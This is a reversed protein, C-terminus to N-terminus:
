ASKSLPLHITLMTGEEASSEIDLFGRLLSIRERMSTMGFGSEGSSPSLPTNPMGRGDDRITLIIQDGRRHVEVEATTAGSHKVVNNLGEQVIRYLNIRLDEPFADDIDEIKDLITIESAKSVTRCLSQIALTLGLRDLQFPRLSYSIARTEDIAASVEERIEEFAQQKDEDTCDKGKSRIQFLALNNVVILHQGLSDHLEAAIRRREGEQSAILQRSFAQQQAHAQEFQNVRHIWVSATGIMTLLIFIAIFWWRRYFPPVVIVRLQASRVSDIGDSNRAMVRFVYDGPSLHTYYATRRTGVSQWDDDVGELKYRFAVQEPKTFSLATYDIELGTQGPRLTSIDSPEQQQRDVSFSEILVRPPQSIPILKEPDVIALGMQTPFYLLDQADKAGAPWAGGNCEANLMGDARGYAISTVSSERGDAVSLLQDRDVRYIGRSSSIWFRRRNDELIQFAGNDFLGSQKNFKIWKGGRFLGIGGDYTGIWISGASDELISRINNSPLGTKETWRTLQSGHIRTVGGYGGVWLDGTHDSIIVRVDDAALGDTKSLHHRFTDNVIYLGHTTGFLMSGDAAQHIVQVVEGDQPSLRPQTIRGGVLTRTGGDTGIWLVGDRDEFLASVLGPIGEAKKFTRVVSGNRIESVGGPWSGAWIEGSKSGLVPYTNNSALGQEETLVRVQQRQIRYLGEGETGVWLNGENDAQIVNLIIPHDLGEIPLHLRRDFRIPIVDVKWDEKSLGHLAFSDVKRTLAGTTIGLRGIRGDDTGIWGDGNANVVVTGVDSFRIHPPMGFTLLQGRNFCILQRNRRAWFGTGFWRLAKFELDDTSFETREFRQASENWQLVKSGCLIWVRGRNGTIAGVSGSEVGYREDLTSFNNNHLRVLNRDESILWLDDGVGPVMAIFRNSSIGPSNSKDYVQFRVGDFRALGNFTAVWLYGTPTQVIGRVSSQPLGSDATWQTFRYQSWCRQPSILLGLSTLLYVSTFVLSLPARLFYRVSVKPDKSLELELGLPGTALAATPQCGTLLTSSVKMLYKCAM